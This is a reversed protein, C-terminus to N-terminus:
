AIVPEPVTKEKIHEDKWINILEQKWPMDIVTGLISPLYECCMPDWWHTLLMHSPTQAAMMALSVFNQVLRSKEDEPAVEDAKQAMKAVVVVPNRSGELCAMAEPPIYLLNDECKQNAAHFTDYHEKYAM